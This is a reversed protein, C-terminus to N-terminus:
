SERSAGYRATALRASQNPMEGAIIGAQLPRHWATGRPENAIGNAFGTPSADAALRFPMM